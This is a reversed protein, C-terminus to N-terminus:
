CQRKGQKRKKLKKYEQNQNNKTEKISCCNSSEWSGGQILDV